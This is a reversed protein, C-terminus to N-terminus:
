SAPAEDEAKAAGSLGVFLGVVQFFGKWSTAGHMFAVSPPSEDTAAAGGRGNNPARPARRLRVHSLRWRQEALAAWLM